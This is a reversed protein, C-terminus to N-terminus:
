GIGVVGVGMRELRRQTAASTRELDLLVTVELGPVRDKQCRELAQLAQRSLTYPARVPASVSSWSLETCPNLRQVSDHLYQQQHEPASNDVIVLVADSATEQQEQVIARYHLDRVISEPTHTRTVRVPVVCLHETTETM